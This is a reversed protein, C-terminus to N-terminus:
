ACLGARVGSIGGRKMVNQTRALISVWLAERARFYHQALDQVQASSLRAARPGLYALSRALGADSPCRHAHRATPGAM